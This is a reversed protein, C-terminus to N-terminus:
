KQQKVCPDFRGSFEMMCGEKGGGRGGRRVRDGKRMNGRSEQRRGTRGGGYLIEGCGRM